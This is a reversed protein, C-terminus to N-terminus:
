LRPPEKPLKPLLSKELMPAIPVGRIEDVRVAAGLGGLDLAVSALGDHFRTRVSRPSGLGLSQRARNASVNEQYPDYLDLMLRVQEASTRAVDVRGDLTRRWPKLRIAIHADLPKKDAAVALGTVDGRFDVRTDAGRLDVFCRGGVSGGLATMEFRELALTNREVRVSAGLPGIVADGFALRKVRVFATGAVLPQQDEFRERSFANAAVPVLRPGENEM